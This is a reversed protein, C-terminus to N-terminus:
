YMLEKVSNNNDVVTLRIFDANLVKKLMNKEEASMRIIVNKASKIVGSLKTRNPVIRKRSGCVPCGRSGKEINTIARQADMALNRFSPFKNWLNTNRIMQLIQSDDLRIAKGVEKNM